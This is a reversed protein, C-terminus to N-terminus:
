RTWYFNSHFTYCVGDTSHFVKKWVTTSLKTNGHNYSILNPTPLYSIDDYNDLDSIVEDFIPSQQMCAKIANKYNTHNISCPHKSNFWKWFPLKYDVFYDMYYEFRCITIDPPMIGEEVKLDMVENEKYHDSVVYSSWYAFVTLMVYFCTKDFKGRRLNDKIVFKSLFEIISVASYGLCIGLFGGVEGLFAIGDYAVFSEHAELTDLMTLEFKNDSTLSQELPRTTSFKSFKCATIKPCNKSVNDLLEAPTANISCNPLLGKQTMSCNYKEKLMKHMELNQCVKFHNEGCPMTNTPTMSMQTKWIYTSCGLIGTFVHLIDSYEAAIALDNRDHLLMIGPEKSIDMGFTIPGKPSPLNEEMDIDLTYCLGFSKHHVPTWCKKNDLYVVQSDDNIYPNTLINEISYQFGHIHNTLQALTMNEEQLLPEQNEMSCFTIFPFDQVMNTKITSSETAIPRELLRASCNWLWYLFVCWLVAKFLGLLWKNWQKLSVFDLLCLGLMLGFTGGVEGCLSQFDYGLETSINEVMPNGYEITLTGLCFYTTFYNYIPSNCLGLNELHWGDYPRLFLTRIEYRTDECLRM